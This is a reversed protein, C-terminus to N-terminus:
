PQPEEQIYAGMGGMSLGNIKGDLVEQWLDDNTFRVAVAWAGIDDPFDIDGERIIFSEVVQMGTPIFDHERDVKNTLGAALFNWASQQIDDKNMWDGHVDKGQSEVPGYVIAYAVKHVIDSKLVKMRSNAQAVQAAHEPHEAWFSALLEQEGTTLRHADRAAKRVLFKEIDTIAFDDAVMKEGKLIAADVQQDLANIVNATIQSAETDLKELVEGQPLFEEASVFESKLIRFIPSGALGIGKESELQIADTTM